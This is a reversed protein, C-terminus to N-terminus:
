VVRFEQIYEWPILQQRGDLEEIMLYDVERKYWDVLRRHNVLFEALPTPCQPSLKLDLECATEYCAFTVRYRNKHM